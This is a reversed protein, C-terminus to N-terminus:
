KAPVRTACKPPRNTKDHERNRWLIVWGQCQHLMAEGETDFIISRKQSTPTRKRPINDVDDGFFSLIGQLEQRAARITARRLPALVRFFSVFCVHSTKAVGSM